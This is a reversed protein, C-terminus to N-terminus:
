LGHKVCFSKARNALESNNQLDLEKTIYVESDGTWNAESFFTLTQISLKPNPNAAIQASYVGYITTLLLLIIKSKM